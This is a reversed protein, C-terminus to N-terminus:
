RLEDCLFQKVTYFNGYSSYQRGKRKQIDAAASTNCIDVTRLKRMLAAKQGITLSEVKQPINTPCYNETRTLIDNRAKRTYYYYAGGKLRVGKRISKIDKTMNVLYRAQSQIAKKHFKKM